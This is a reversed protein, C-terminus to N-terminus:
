LSVTLQNRVVNRFNAPKRHHSAHAEQQLIVSARVMNIVYHSSEISASAVFSSEVVTAKSVGACRSGDSKNLKNKSKYLFTKLAIQKFKVENKILISKM